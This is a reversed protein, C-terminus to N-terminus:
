YEEFKVGMHRELDKKIKIMIQEAFGYSLDDNIEFRHGKYEIVGYNLTSEPKLSPKETKENTEEKNITHVTLEPNQPKVTPSPIVVTEKIASLTQKSPPEPIRPQNPGSKRVTSSWKSFPPSKNICSLDDTFAYWLQNLTEEDLNGYHPLAKVTKEFVDKNPTKGITTILHAWLPIKNITALIKSPSDSNGSIIAKGSESIMYTTNNRHILGYLEMDRLKDATSTAKLGTIEVFQARTFSTPYKKSVEILHDIALGLRTFIIPVNGYRVM